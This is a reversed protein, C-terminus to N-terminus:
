RVVGGLRFLHSVKRRTEKQLPVRLRDRQNGFSVNILKHRDKPPSPHLLLRTTALTLTIAACHTELEFTGLEQCDNTFELTLAGLGVKGGVIFEGVVVPRQQCRGSEPQM